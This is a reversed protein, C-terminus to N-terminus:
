LIKKSTFNGSSFCGDHIVDSQIFIGNLATVAGTKKNIAATGRITAFSGPGFGVSAVFAASTAKTLYYYGTMPFTTGGDFGPTLSVTLQTRSDIRVWLDVNNRATFKIAAGDGCHESGVTEIKFVEGPFALATAPPLLLATLLILTKM